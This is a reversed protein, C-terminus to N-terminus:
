WEHTGVTMLHVQRHWVLARHAGGWIGNSAFRLCWVVSVGKLSFLISTIGHYSFISSFHQTSSIFSPHTRYNFRNEMDQIFTVSFMFAEMNGSPSPPQSAKLPCVTTILFSSTRYLVCQIFTLNRHWIGFKCWCPFYSLHFHCQKISINAYTDDRLRWPAVSEGKWDQCVAVNPNFWTIM